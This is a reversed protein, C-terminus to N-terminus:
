PFKNNKFHNWTVKDLYQLFPHDMQFDYLDYRSVVQHYFMYLDEAKNNRELIEWYINFVWRLPKVKAYCSEYHQYHQERFDTDEAM